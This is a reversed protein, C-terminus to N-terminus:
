LPQPTRSWNSNLWQAPTPCIYIQARLYALVSLLLFFGSLLDRRETAWAVSEVRLPHVGFFLAAAFSGILAAFAAQRSIISPRFLRLAILLVLVANIAHLLNNTFHYPRPDLENDYMARAITADAGLTLWTLPQYHGMHFTSFAWAINDPGLGRYHPNELFNLPDDWDVFQNQLAPRFVGWVVIFVTLLCLIILAPSPRPVAASATQSQVLERPRQHKRSRKGVRKV